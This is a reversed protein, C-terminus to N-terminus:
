ILLKLCIGAVSLVMVTGDRVEGRHLCKDWLVTLSLHPGLREGLHCTPPYSLPLM